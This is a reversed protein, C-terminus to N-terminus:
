RMFSDLPPRKDKKNIFDLNGGKGQQRYTKIRNDHTLELWHQAYKLTAEFNEYPQELRPLIANRLLIMEDKSIQKGSLAYAITIMSEVENIVTQSAGEGKWKAKLQTWRGALPGFNKKLSASDKLLEGLRQHTTKIDSLEKLVEEGLPKEAVPPLLTGAGVGKTVGPQIGKDTIQFAITTPTGEKAYQQRKTSLYKQGDTTKAFEAFKKRGEATDYEAGLYETAAMDYANPMNVPKDPKGALGTEKVNGTTDQYLATTGPIPAYKGKEKQLSSLIPIAKAALDIPVDGQLLASMISEVDIPKKVEKTPEGTPVAYEEGGAMGVDKNGVTETGRNGFLDAMTYKSHKFALDAKQKELALMDKRMELEQTAQEMQFQKFAQELQSNKWAMPNGTAFGTLAGGIADKWGM